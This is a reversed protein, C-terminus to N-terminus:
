EESNTDIKIGDPAFIMAPAESSDNSYGEITIGESGYNIIGGDTANNEVDQLHIRTDSSSSKPEKNSLLLYGVSLICFVVIALGIPIYNKEDFLKKVDKSFGLVDQLM